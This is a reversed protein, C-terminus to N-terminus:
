AAIKYDPDPTLKNLKSTPALTIIEASKEVPISIRINRLNEQAGYGHAALVIQRIRPLTGSLTLGISFIALMTVSAFILSALIVM